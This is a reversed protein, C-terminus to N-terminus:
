CVHVMTQCAYHGGMPRCNFGEIRIVYSKDWM